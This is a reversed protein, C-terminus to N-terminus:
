YTLLHSLSSYFSSFSFVNFGDTGFTNETTYSVRLAGDSSKHLAYIEGITSNSIPLTNNVFVFIAKEPPLVLQRRIIYILEAMTYHSPVIYKQKPLDPIDRTNDVKTIFVPVSGPYKELIDALVNSKLVPKKMKSIYYEKINLYM